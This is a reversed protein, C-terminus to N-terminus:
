AAVPESAVALRAPSYDEGRVMLAWAIRAMKNALAVAALKASRHKQLLRVLWPNATYGPQRARRIVAMAGVVLLRRLYRDGARSIGGSRPKGGTSNQRPVLGIWASLDRGSRFLTPDPISAVLATSTLPGIGPIAELRRSMASSRHYAQIQRELEVIRCKTVELQEALLSLCVRAAAPLNSEEAQQDLMQLLAELGRRGVGAVLGFEALHSRMANILQTRQGVLLSRTRHLMLIAQQDKSKVPVFRMSPRSVAECIAEADAADTKNRKVYAKVYSPPMLKVQHGLAQLERAWYHATACAEMGVLCPELAAFYKLVQRRKLSRRDAVQQTADVAHVQFVSKALDLGITSIRQM